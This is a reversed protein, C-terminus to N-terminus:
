LATEAGLREGNCVRMMVAGQRLVLIEGRDLLAERRRVRVGIVRDVGPFEARLSSAGQRPQHLRRILTPSNRARSFLAVVTDRDSVLRFGVAGIGPQRENSSCCKLSVTQTGVQQNKEQKSAGQCKNARILGLAFGREIAMNKAGNGTRYRSLDDKFEVDLLWRMSEVGTVTGEM